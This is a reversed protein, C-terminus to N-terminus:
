AFLALVVALAPAVLLLALLNARISETARRRAEGKLPNLALGEHRSEGHRTEHLM